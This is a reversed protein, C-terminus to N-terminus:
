PCETRNGLGALNMAPTAGTDYMRGMWQSSPDFADSANRDGGSVACQRFLIFDRTSLGGGTWDRSPSEGITGLSDVPTAEGDCVLTLADDGNHNLAGTTQTCATSLEISANCLVHVAGAALSGMLPIPFPTSSGNSYRRVECRSLDISASSTNQIELAKNNGSGEIYETFLLGLAPGPPGADVGADSGGADTGADRGADGRGADSGGDLRPGADIEGADSGADFGGDGDGADVGGDLPASECRGDVCDVGDDCTVGLCSSAFTVTVIRQQGQVFATQLVRQIVPNGGRIGQVEVTVVAEDETSPLVALSHPWDGDIRFTRDLSHGAGTDVIFRLTDVDEPARLETSTVEILLSTPDSCSTLLALVTM